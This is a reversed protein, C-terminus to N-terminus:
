PKPPPPNKIGGGGIDEPDPDPPLDMVANQTKDKDTFFNKIIYAIGGSLAVKAIIPMDYHPILEQLLYIVPTLVSMILGRLADRQKLSLFGSQKM